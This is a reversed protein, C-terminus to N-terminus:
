PQCVSFTIDHQDQVSGLVGKAWFPSHGEHERGQVRQLTNPAASRHRGAAFTQLQDRLPTYPDMFEATICHLASLESCPEPIHHVKDKGQRLLRQVSFFSRIQKQPGHPVNFWVWDCALGIRGSNGLFAFNHLDQRVDATVIVLKSTEIDQTTRAYM